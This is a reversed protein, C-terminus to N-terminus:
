QLSPLKDTQRKSAILASTQEDPRLIGDETLATRLEIADIIEKIAGQKSTDRSLGVIERFNIYNEIARELDKRTFVNIM